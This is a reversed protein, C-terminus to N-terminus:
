RQRWGRVRVRWNPTPQSTFCLADADAVYVPGEHADIDVVWDLQSADRLARLLEPDHMVFPAAM